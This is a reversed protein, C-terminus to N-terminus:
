NTIRWQSERVRIFVYGGANLDRQADEWPLVKIRLVQPQTLLPDGPNIGTIANVAGATRVPGTLARAGGRRGAVRGENQGELDSETVTRYDEFGSNTREYVHSVPQCGTRPFQGCSFSACGNLLVACASLFLIKKM